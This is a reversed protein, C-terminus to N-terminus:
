KRRKSKSKKKKQKMLQHATLILVLIELLDKIIELIEKLNVDKERREIIRNYCTIVHKDIRKRFNKGINKIELM